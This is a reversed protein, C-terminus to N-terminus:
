ALRLLSLAPQPAGRYAVAGHECCYSGRTKPRGCYTFSEHGPDGIPWACQSSKLTLVTALGPEEVAASRVPKAVPPAPRQKAPAPRPEARPREPRRGSVPRPKSPVARGSLGLRHVKGIVANRTVGGIQRAIATASVGDLWLTKVTQVRDATWNPAATM